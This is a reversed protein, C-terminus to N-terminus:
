SALKTLPSLSDGVRGPYRISDDSSDSNSQNPDGGNANVSSSIVAMGGISSNAAVTSQLNSFQSQSVSTGPSSATSLQGAVQVSGSTITDLSISGIDLSVVNALDTLFTQYNQYFTAFDVNLRINFGFNFNSVCKRKVLKYTDVCTLCVDVSASCTLCPSQCAACNVPSNDAAEQLAM